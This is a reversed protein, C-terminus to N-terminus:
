NCATALPRYKGSKPLIPRKAEQKKGLIASYYAIAINVYPKSATKM